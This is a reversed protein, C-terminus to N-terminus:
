KVTFNRMAYGTSANGKQAKVRLQYSGKSLPINAKNSYVVTDLVLEDIFLFNPKAIQLKYESAHKVEDWYVSVNKTTVYGERPTLLMLREMKLDEKDEADKECSILTSAVAIFFTFYYVFKRM